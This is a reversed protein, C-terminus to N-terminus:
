ASWEVHEKLPPIAVIRSGFGTNGPRFAADICIIVRHPFGTLAVQQEHHIISGELYTKFIRSCLGIIHDCSHNSLGVTKTISGNNNVETVTIQKEEILDYVLENLSSNKYTSLTSFLIDSKSLLVNKRLIYVSKILNDLYIRFVSGVNFLHARITVPDPPEIPTTPIETESGATDEDGTVSDLAKNVYRSIFASVARDAIDIGLAALLAILVRGM